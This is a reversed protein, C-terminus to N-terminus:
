TVPIDPADETLVSRAHIRSGTYIARKVEVVPNFPTYGKRAMEIWYFINDIRTDFKSKERLPKDQKSVARGIILVLTVFLLITLTFLTKKM